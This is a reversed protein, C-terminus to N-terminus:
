PTQPHLGALSNHRKGGPETTRSNLPEELQQIEKRLHKLAPTVIAVFLAERQLRQAPHSALYGAAGAHLAASRSAKLALETSALRLKLIALLDAKGHDLLHAQQSIKLRLAHYQQQIVTEQDDLYANIAASRKNSHRIIALASAIAGLGMSTQSLVFGPKIKQIYNAFEKPQALVQEDPIVVDKFHLGLTQTGNMGAFEPCARLTLGPTDGHVAFMIYGNDDAAAAVIALHDKAINSVWPLAGQVVFHNNKRRARLHIKEIGALHKVTNSMGTGALLQGQAVSKLYRKQALTNETQRLYWACAAQCWVLFATSGCVSGVTEGITIQQGLGLGTGGLKTPIAAAFGGHAGLQQMFLKPYYGEADIRQALPALQQHILTELSASDGALKTASSM